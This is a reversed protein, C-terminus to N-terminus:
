NFIFPTFAGKIRFLPDAPVDEAFGHVQSQDQAGNAVDNVEIRGEGNILLGHIFGDAAAPIGDM